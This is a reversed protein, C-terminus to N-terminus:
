NYCCSLECIMRLLSIDLLRLRSNVGLRKHHASAVIVARQTQDIPNLWDYMDEKALNLAVSPCGWLLTKLTQYKDYTPFGLLLQKTTKALSNLESSRCSALRPAYWELTYEFGEIQMVPYM